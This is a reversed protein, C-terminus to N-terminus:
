IVKKLYYEFTRQDAFNFKRACFFDGAEIRMDDDIKIDLPHNMTGFTKGFNVYMLEDEVSDKYPSNMIITQFFMLDSALSNEWYRSYGEHENLFGCIYEIVDMPAIFWTRGEYFRMKEHLVNKNPYLVIGFGCLLQIGIRIFRSLSWDERKMLRKPWNVKYRAARRDKDKVENNIRIFTTDPKSELYSYLGKKVLLDQGSGFYIHSYENGSELAHRMLFITAKVIEFSGWRVEYESFVFVRPSKTIDNMMSVNKKDIHVYVDCDGYELVQNIFANVQQPNTHALLLYALKVTKM